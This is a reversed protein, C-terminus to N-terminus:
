FVYMTQFALYHENLSNAFNTGPKGPSYLANFARHYRFTFGIHKSAFFSAGVLFCFSDKNLHPLAPTIGAISGDSDDTFSLLRSYSLGINFNIRFFDPNDTDGNAAWDRYHWQLPVEIFNLTTSFTPPYDPQNRSGRQSFLFEISAEQRPKLVVIGRLGGQLGVKHYGASADGDIQSATVGVILGAKFRQQRQANATNHSLFGLIALAVFCPKAFFLTMSHTRM